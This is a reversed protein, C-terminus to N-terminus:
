KLSLLEKKKIVIANYGRFCKPCQLPYIYDVIPWNHGCVKCFANDMESSSEMEDVTRKNLKVDIMKPKGFPREIPKLKRNCSKCVLLMNEPLEYLYENRSECKYIHHAKSENVIVENGCKECTIKCTEKCHGYQTPLICQFNYNCVINNTRFYHVLKKFRYKWKDPEKINIHQKFYDPDTKMKNEHEKYIENYYCDGCLWKGQWKSPMDWVSRIWRRGCEQCYYTKFTKICSECYSHIYGYDNEVKSYWGGIKIQTRCKECLFKHDARFGIVM